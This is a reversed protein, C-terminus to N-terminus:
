ILLLFCTELNVVCGSGNMNVDQVKKAENEIHSRITQNFAELYILAKRRLAQDNPSLDDYASEPELIRVYGYKKLNDDLTIVGPIFMDQGRRVAIFQLQKNEIAQNADNFPDAQAFSVLQQDATTEIVLKWYLPMALAAIAVVILVMFNITKLNALSKDRKAFRTTNSMAFDATTRTDSFVSTKRM